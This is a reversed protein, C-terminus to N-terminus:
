NESGILKNEDLRIEETYWEKLHTVISHYHKRGHHLCFFLELGNRLTARNYAQAGCSDCRITANLKFKKRDELERYSFQPPAEVTTTSLSM